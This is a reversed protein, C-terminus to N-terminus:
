VRLSMKRAMWAIKGGNHSVFSIKHHEHSNQTRVGKMASILLQTYLKVSSNVPGCYLIVICLIIIYQSYALKAPNLSLSHKSRTPKQTHGGTYRYVMFGAREDTCESISLAIPSRAAVMTFSLLRISVSMVANPLSTTSTLFRTWTSIGKPNQMCRALSTKWQKAAKMAFMVCACALDVSNMLKQVLNFFEGSGMVSLYM